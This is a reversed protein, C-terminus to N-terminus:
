KAQSRGTTQYQLLLQSLRDVVDPLDAYLNTSEVPDQILDYLQGVPEGPEPYVTIPSSFGGSGRGLILKWRGDRIAFTGRYSHMVIPGRSFDASGTLAPLINWSDEGASDPIPINSIASITAFLDVLSITEESIRGSPIVGPWRAIFPVRHGGEWIDAKQGRWPGNARHDWREIDDPTWHAGNDSTFILLTNEAFGSSDLANVIRSVVADVHVVFDGYYGAGSQGLSVSDPLWPTHPATLPVYLFFPQDLRDTRERIYTAAKDGITDLVEEFKFDPAIPGARWYGDGGERRSFSEKVHDTAPVDVRDEQIWIYPPIDLSSPIGYYETFGAEAPGGHILDDYDTREGRGLGLHWKGFGATAYGEARLVSAITLRDPEILAPDDEWLVSEKLRTRWAYRGTLLSYRTPSCVASPSHADTLRIGEQALRDIAPTSIRSDPNYVGVDGIGLDDALIIVVNPPPSESQVDCGSIMLLVLAALTYRM